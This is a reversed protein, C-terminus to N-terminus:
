VKNSRKEDGWEIIIPQLLPNEPDVALQVPILKSALKYFETPNEKAWTILNAKKDKQLKDFVDAFVEKVLKTTKNVAGKPKGPNGKKFQTVEKGM